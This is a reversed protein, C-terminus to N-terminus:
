IHTHLRHLVNYIIHWIHLICLHNACKLRVLAATGHWISRCCGSYRLDWRPHHTQPQSVADTLTSRTLNVALRQLSLELRYFIDEPMLKPDNNEESGCESKQFFLTM